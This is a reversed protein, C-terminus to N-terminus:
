ASSLLRKLRPNERWPAYVKEREMSMPELMESPAPTGLTKSRLVWNPRESKWALCMADKEQIQSTGAGGHCPASTRWTKPPQCTLPKTFRREPVGTLRTIPRSTASLPM